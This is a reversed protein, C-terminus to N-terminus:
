FVVPLNHEKHYDIIPQFPGFKHQMESFTDAYPGSGYDIPKMKTNEYQSVTKPPFPRPHIRDDNVFAAVDIAEEDTLVPKYWFALKDPMNAKIFRASKLVRHISSGGEYSDKGWLPPYIYGSSDFNWQGAGDKGHCSMCHQAYILAGKEPDAARDPYVLDIGNDGKVRQGTPVGEAIWRMYSTMAIMEKSDLPLPKGHHPREICNNIRQSLTLIKNERGRYQPYRAHSSFFNHAYARTGADLHCNNCTMKNDLNQSVIGDPGIYYATNVVLQRGYRVMDGFDGEPITNTDPAVFLPAETSTATPAEPRCSSSLSIVILLVPWLLRISVCHNMM